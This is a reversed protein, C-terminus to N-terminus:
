SMTVATNGSPTPKPAGATTMPHLRRPPRRHGDTHLRTPAGWPAARRPAGRLAAGGDRQVAAGGTSRGPGPGAAHRHYSGAEGGGAGRSGQEAARHCRARLM